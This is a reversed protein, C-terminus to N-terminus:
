GQCATSLCFSQKKNRFFTNSTRSRITWCRDEQTVQRQQRSNGKGSWGDEDCQQWKWKSWVATEAKGRELSNKISNSADLTFTSSDLRKFNETFPKLVILLPKEIRKSFNPQPQVCCLQRCHFLPSCINWKNQKKIEHRLERGYNLTYNIYVGFM